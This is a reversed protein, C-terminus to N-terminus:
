IQAQPNFLQDGISVIGSVVAGAPGGAAGGAGAADFVNSWFNGQQSRLMAITAEMGIATMEREFQRTALDTGLLMATAASDVVNLVPERLNPLNALMLEHGGLEAQSRVGLLQSSATAYAADSSAQIGILNATIEKSAITAQTFSAGQQSSLAAQGSLGAEQIGAVLSGFKTNIDATIKTFELSTAGVMTGLSSSGSMRVQAIMSAKQSQTLNPDSQIKSIASGIDGHIGQVAAEMVQARDRTVDALALGWDEDIIATSSDILGQFETRLAEFESKVQEPILAAEGLERNIADTTAARNAALDELETDVAATTEDLSTQIGEHIGEAEAKLDQAAAYDAAAQEEM